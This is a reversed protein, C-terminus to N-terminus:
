NADDLAAKAQAFVPAMETGPESYYRLEAAWKVVDTLAARLCRNIVKQRDIEVAADLLARNFEPDCGKAAMAHMDRLKKAIDSM